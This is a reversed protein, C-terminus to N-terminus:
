DRGAGIDALVTAPFHAAALRDLIRGVDDPGRTEVTVDLGANKSPVDSLLRQHTVDLINGGCGGILSAVTALVGPRDAIEVRLRVVRGERLRVRNIVNALLGTDINAGTIVLGVRRGAFRERNGLLAALPTAGAGEALLKEEELLLHIAREIAGESVLVVDEVLAAVIARTLTGVSKVAIGEAITQGGVWPEEGRLVREMSPYLKTQVGVIEIGPRLARAATAVGSILGGGGIPVLVADLEPEDRLLELALTGQGAIIRPDDYPHVLTLGDDAVLRRAHVEADHLGEGALVVRAGFAETRRIKTFPTGEPMVITAPIGLRASQFAVAQAHNGASMAVVGRERERESLQLLLNAAGRDKFSGTRQRTELKLVVRAGSLDSLAPAFLAPTDISRGAIRAQAAQVDALSVPLTV